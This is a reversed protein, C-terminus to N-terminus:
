AARARTGLVVDIPTYDRAQAAAVQPNTLMGAHTNLGLALAPDALCADRWGHEAITIVYPLTLNTLAITSTRPYAGPMNAVCYFTSGEVTFTPDDHTTARSDEFCGGQDIAIDVLASGPRMRRVLDHSVLKPAAAGPVLVAGIVLDAELCAEEVSALTSVVTRVAAGYRNSAERLREPNKDILTVQAQMGIAIAAASMGAVGAGIVTVKAAPVGPVGGMLTGTGGSTHQLLTAGIQSAMRGAVESMPALLPLAGGPLQVTEYAIATVGAALLADTGARDAALHLYTFLIQGPRMLAFETERPEKVKVILDSAAWVDAASPVVRAGVARYDGDSFGSGVGAGAQVLVSHGRATLERVGAPTAAVRYEHQKIEAPIGIQM